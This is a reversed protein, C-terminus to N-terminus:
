CGRSDGHHRVRDWGPGRCNRWTLTTRSNRCATHWGAKTRGGDWAVVHIWVGCLKHWPPAVARIAPELREGRGRRVHLEGLSRSSCSSSSVVRRRQGTSCAAAEMVRGDDLRRTQAHLAGRLNLSNALATRQVCSGNGVHRLTGQRTHHQCLWRGEDESGRLVRGLVIDLHHQIIKPAEEVERRRQTLVDLLLVVVGRQHEAHVADRGEPPHHVVDRSWGLQLEARQREEPVADVGLPFVGSVSITPDHLHLSSSGLDILRPLQQKTAGNAVRPGWRYALGDVTHHELDTLAGVPQLQPDGLVRARQLLIEGFEPVRDEAGGERSRVQCVGHHLLARM